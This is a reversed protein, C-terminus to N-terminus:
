ECSCNLKAKPMSCGEQLDWACLDGVPAILRQQTTFADFSYMGLAFVGMIAPILVKKKFIKKRM